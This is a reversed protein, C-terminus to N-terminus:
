LHIGPSYVRIEHPLEFLAVLKCCSLNYVNYSLFFAFLKVLDENHFDTVLDFPRLFIAPTSASENQGNKIRTIGFSYDKTQLHNLNKRFISIQNEVLIYAGFTECLNEQLQQIALSTLANFM